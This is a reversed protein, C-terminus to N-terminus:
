KFTMMIIAGVGLGALASVIFGNQSATGDDNPKEFFAVLGEWDGHQRMWPSLHTFMYKSVWSVIRDVYEGGMDTRQACHIALTSGFTLFAVIRGWNKGSIFIEDAIGQFTSYVTNPTIRIQTFMQTFFQSNSAELEDGVRRLTTAIKYVNEHTDFEEYGPIILHNLRLREAIFTKVVPRYMYEDEGELATAMQTGFICLFDLKVNKDVSSIRHKSLSIM